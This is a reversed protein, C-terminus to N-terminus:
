AFSIDGRKGHYRLKEIEDVFADEFFHPLSPRQRAESERMIRNFVAALFNPNFKPRTRKRSLEGDDPRRM